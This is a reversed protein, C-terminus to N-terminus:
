LVGGRGAGQSSGNSPHRSELNSEMSGLVRTNTGRSFGRECCNGSLYKSFAHVSPHIFHDLYGRFVKGIKLEM